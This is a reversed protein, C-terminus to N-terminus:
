DPASARGHVWLPVHPRLWQRLTLHPSGGAAEITRRQVVRLQSAGIRYERGLSDWAVIARVSLPDDLLAFRLEVVETAVLKLPLAIPSPAIKGVYQELRYRKGFARVVGIDRVHTDRRGNNVIEIGMVDSILEKGILSSWKAVTARVRLNPRDSWDRRWTVFLGFTAVIAGYGAIWQTFSDPLAM